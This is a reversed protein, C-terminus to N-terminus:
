AVRAVVIAKISAPRLAFLMRAAQKLTAGSTMVDDVLLINKNKYLSRDIENIQFVGQVNQERQEGKFYSQFPTRKIRKLLHAIPKGSKRAIVRAIEDAQNYGRWAYRTWHLPIPVIYDFQLHAIASQQWVLQGLQHAATRKGSSKALILSVLPQDYAGVAHVTITKTKTISLQHSVVPRIRAVCEACLVNSDQMAFTKCSACFTPTILQKVHHFLKTYM